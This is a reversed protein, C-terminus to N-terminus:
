YSPLGDVLLVRLPAYLIPLYEHLTHLSVRMDSLIDCNTLVFQNVFPIAHTLSQVHRPSTAGRLRASGCKM